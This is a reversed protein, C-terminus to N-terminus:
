AQALSYLRDREEPADLRDFDRVFEELEARMELHFRWLATAGSNQIFELGILIDESNEREQGRMDSILRKLLDSFYGECEPSFLERYMGPENRAFDESFELEGDTYDIYSELASSRRGGRLLFLYYVIRVITKCM